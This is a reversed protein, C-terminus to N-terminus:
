ALGFWKVSEQYSKLWHLAKKIMFLRASLEALHETYKEHQGFKKVGLIDLMWPLTLGQILLTAIIVCFVLFLIMPQPVNQSPQTDYM